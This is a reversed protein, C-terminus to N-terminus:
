RVLAGCLTAARCSGASSVLRFTTGTTPDNNTDVVAVVEGLENTTLRSSVRPWVYKTSGKGKLEPFPVEDAAAVAAAAATVSAAANPSTGEVAAPADAVLHLLEGLRANDPPSVVEVREEGARGELAPNGPRVAALVMGNSMVGRMKVPKLNCLVCVKKGGLSDLPVRGALGSCVTRAGGARPGMDISLIYLSDADPHKIATMISGVRWEVKEVETMTPM